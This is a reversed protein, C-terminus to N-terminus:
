GDGDGGGAGYRGQSEPWRVFLGDVLVLDADYETAAFPGEEYGGAASEFQSDRGGSSLEYSACGDEDPELCTWRLEQKWGDQSGGEYGHGALQAVLAAADAAGPYRQNDAAYSELAAGISRMDAVTRKQKAKQLADLFNPILLAAVIGALALGVVACGAGVVAIVIWKSGKDAAPLAIPQGCAPCVTAGPPLPGSCRPCFTEAM